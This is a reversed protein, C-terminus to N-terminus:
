ETAGFKEIFEEDFEGKENFVLVEEYDIECILPFNSKSNYRTKMTVAQGNVKVPYNSVTLSGDDILDVKFAASSEKITITIGEPLQYDLIKLALVGMCKLLKAENFFDRPIVRQYKVISYNDFIKIHKGM